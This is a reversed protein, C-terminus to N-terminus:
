KKKVTLISSKEIEIKVGDAIRLTLTKEGVTVVTAHVGGSTIVEDNKDLKALMEAHDKQKKQQPRLILFYFVVFLFVLPLFQLFPSPENM